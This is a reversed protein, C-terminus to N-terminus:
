CMVVKDELVVAAGVPRDASSSLHRDHSGAAAVHSGAVADHSGAVADHSHRTVSMHAAPQTKHRVVHRALTSEPIGFLQGAKRYSPRPM